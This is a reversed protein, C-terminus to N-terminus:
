GLGLAPGGQGGVGGHGWGEGGVGQGLGARARAGLERNGKGWAGGGEGWIVGLGATREKAKELPEQSHNGAAYAKHQHKSNCPMGVLACSTSLHAATLLAARWSDVM